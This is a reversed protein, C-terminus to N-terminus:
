ADTSAELLARMIDNVKEPHVLGNSAKMVQGIFFGFLQAKGGRYAAVNKQNKPEALVAQCYRTLEAVDTIQAWGKEQVITAAPRSDEYYMLEILEKAMKGSLTEDVILDVLQGLRDPSVTSEAIGANTAKLLSFLDNLVWNAVLKHPRSSVACVAEFFDVASPTLVLVSAEYASLGYTARLRAKMKEPLEPLTVLADDVFAPTIVLPPLDPEPFFRYDKAGEKTRMRKTMGTAADFTRTEKTISTGTALIHDVQREMEYEVAKVLNKISNMNKVEVREGFPISTEEELTSPKPRVSVNLDCRMSGEEMNGDCTGIHRLLHQVERLVQGAEAASRLDPEFVIEMLGTGARNLDVHTADLTHISKGSDQEIQIRNIRVSKEVWEDDAKTAAKKSAANKEKRSTFNTQVVPTAEQVQFKLVGNTAIPARQQTIQYGLPLDCYFYHKREFVSRLQVDSQLARATRVAQQVCAVNVSPLTGPLAADFFSVRTNPVLSGKTAASAGSFLKSVSQIQAHIELGICVEWASLKAAASM